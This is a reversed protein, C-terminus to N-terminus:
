KNHRMSSGATVQIQIGNKMPNPHKIPQKTYILLQHTDLNGKFLEM